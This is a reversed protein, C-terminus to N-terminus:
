YPDILPLPFPTHRYAIFKKIYEYHDFAIEEADPLNDLPVWVLEEVEWDPEGVKEALSFLFIFDVNQKDENRRYPNSNIIFLQQSQGVHGTEERVERILGQSLTEDRDFYGGPLGLKGGESIKRSRRVLLIKNHEVVIAGVTVHRLFVKTTNNFYCTIM